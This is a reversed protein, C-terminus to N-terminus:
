LGLHVPPHLRLVFLMPTLCPDLQEGKWGASSSASESRLTLCSVVPSAAITDVREPPSTPSFWIRAFCFRRPLLFVAIRSTIVAVDPLWLCNRIESTLFLRLWFRSKNWIEVLLVIKQASDRKWMDCTRYCLVEKSLVEVIQWRKLYEFFKISCFCTSLKAAVIRLANWTSFCNWFPLRAEHHACGNAKWILRSHHEPWM